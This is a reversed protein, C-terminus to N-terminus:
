ARRINKKASKIKSSSKPTSKVPTTIKKLSIRHALSKDIFKVAVLFHAAGEKKEIRVIEAFGKFIDLIGSMIVQLEIAEGVLYERDAYFSLGGLSMDQTTTLYWSRDAKVRGTRVVRVEISLVRKARVWSRRELFNPQIIKKTM